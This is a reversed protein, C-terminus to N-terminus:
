EQSLRCVLIDQILLLHVLKLSSAEEICHMQQPVKATLYAGQSLTLM